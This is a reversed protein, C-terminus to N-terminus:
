APVRVADMARIVAREFDPFRFPKRLVDFPAAEGKHFGSAVVIGIHPFDHRCIHALQLGNMTGPMQVDTFLLDFPASAHQHLIILAEDATAATVVSFGADEFFDGVLGALLPEDDVVLVRLRGFRTM